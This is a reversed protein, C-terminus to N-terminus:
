IGKTSNEDSTVKLDGMDPLFCYQYLGVTTLKAFNPSEDYNCIKLLIM